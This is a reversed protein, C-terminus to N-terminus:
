AQSPVGEPTLSPSKEEAEKEAKGPVFFRQDVETVAFLAVVCIELVGLFVYFAARTEFWFPNNPSRRPSFVGSIRVGTSLATMPNTFYLFSEANPYFNSLVAATVLVIIVKTMLSGKKGFNQESSSTYKAVIVIPIPAFVFIIFWVSAFKRIDIGLDAAPSIVRVNLQSTGMATNLISPNTAISSQITTAIVISTPIINIFM